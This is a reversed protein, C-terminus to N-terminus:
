DLKHRVVGTWRSLTISCNGRKEGVKNLPTAAGRAFKQIMGKLKNAKQHEPREGGGVMIQVRLPNEVIVGKKCWDVRNAPCSRSQICIEQGKGERPESISKLLQRNTRQSHNEELAKEGVLSKESSM